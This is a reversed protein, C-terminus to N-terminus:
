ILGEAIEASFALVGGARVPDGKFLAAGRDTKPVAGGAEPQHRSLVDEIGAKFVAFAGADAHWPSWEGAVIAAMAAFVRLTRGTEEDQTPPVRVTVADDEAFTRELRRRIEEGIGRGEASAAQALRNRLEEPLRLSTQVDSKTM